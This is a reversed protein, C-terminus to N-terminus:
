PFAAKKKDQASRVVGHDLHTDVSAGERRAPGSSPILAREPGVREDLYDLIASSEFLVEGDDLLLVPVRGVPNWQSITKKDDGFAMLPRHEYELGYLRLTVAVRRVFPSLYRGVLIM